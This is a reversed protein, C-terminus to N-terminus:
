QSITRVAVEHRFRDLDDPNIIGAGLSLANAAGCATGLILARVLVDERGVAAEITPGEGGEVAQCLAAVFGGIFADGCGVTSVPRQVAAHAWWAGRESVLVVGDAGLTVAVLRAGRQMLLAGARLADEANHVELGLLARAEKANPKVLLPMANIGAELAEGSTDLVSPVGAAHARELLLAYYDRPLGPPLSGSFVVLSAEEVLAAFTDLFRTAEAVTIAPGPENVETVRHRELEVVATCTRSPAEITAFRPTIGAARLNTTIFEGAAGGTLGTAQVEVGLLRLVRAVNLGKGGPLKLVDHATYSAGAELTSITLTTDIAANLTVTLVPLM